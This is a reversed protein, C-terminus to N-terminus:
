DILIQICLDFTLKEKRQTVSTSPIAKILADTIDIKTTSM